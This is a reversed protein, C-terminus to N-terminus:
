FISMILVFIIMEEIVEEMEVFVIDGLLKVCKNWEYLICLILFVILWLVLVIVVIFIIFDIM